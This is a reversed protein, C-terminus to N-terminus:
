TAAWSSSPGGATSRSRGAATMLSSEEPTGSLVSLTKLHPRFSHLLAQALFRAPARTAGDFLAAYPDSLEQRSFPTGDFSVELESGRWEVRVRGAGSAPYRGMLELARGRDVKFTGGGVLVGEDEEEPLEDAEDKM